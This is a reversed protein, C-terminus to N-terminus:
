WGCTTGTRTLSVAEWVSQSVRGRTLHQRWDSDSCSVDNWEDGHCGQCVTNRPNTSGFVAGSREIEVKDM